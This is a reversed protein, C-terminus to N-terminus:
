ENRKAILIIAVLVIMSGGLAAIALLRNQKQMRFREEKDAAVLFDYVVKMRIVDDKTQALKAELEAKQENTLRDIYRQLQKVKSAQNGSVVLGLGVSFAMGLLGTPDFGKTSAAGGDAIGSPTSSGLNVSLPEM